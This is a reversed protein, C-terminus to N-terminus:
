GVCVRDGFSAILREQAARSLEYRVSLRRLRPFASASPALLNAIDEAASGFDPVDLEQLRSALPSVCLAAYVLVGANGLSLRELHPVAMGDFVFQLASPTERTDAGLCLSLSTLEPWASRALADLDVRGQPQTGGLVVAHPLDVRGFTTGRERHHVALLRLNSVFPYLRELSGVDGYWSTFALTLLAPLEGVALLTDIVRSTPRRGGIVLAHVGRASPTAFFRQIVDCDREEMIFFSVHGPMGRRFICEIREDGDLSGLLRPRVVALLRREDELLAPNRADHELDLQVRMLAGRPDDRASLWDAFARWPRLDSAAEGFCHAAIAREFDREDRV